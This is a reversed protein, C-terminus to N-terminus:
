QACRYNHIQYTAKGKAFPNYDQITDILGGTAHAIPVTGYRMAYMQNLGCPEFRCCCLGVDSRACQLLTSRATVHWSATSSCITVVGLPKQQVILLLCTFLLLALKQVCRSPMILIDCGAIIKHSLPVSFGVHGRCFWGYEHSAARVRAEYDAAGSGLLVIQL